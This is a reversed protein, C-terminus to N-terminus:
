IVTIETISASEYLTSVMPGSFVIMWGLRRYRAPFDSGVRDLILCGVTSVQGKETLIEGNGNVVDNGYTEVLLLCCTVQRAPEMITLDGSFDPYFIFPGEVGSGNMTVTLIDKGTQIKVPKFSILVSKGKLKVHADSIDVTSDSGPTFQVELVEFIYNHNQWFSKRVPGDISAWSWSPARYKSSSVPQPADVYWDMMEPLRSKWMGAIYLDKTYDQFLKAIGAFAFLKDSPRTFVCGSYEQVLNMWSDLLPLPISNKQKNGGAATLELLNHKGQAELPLYGILSHFESDMRTFCEWLVENLGFYLVRPALLIEQYVWGRKHLPGYQVRKNWHEIDYVHYNRPSKSDDSFVSASLYPPQLSKPDRARFLGGESDHSASAAVNCASNAYVYRMTPAEREWDRTSDQIICLADIWVYRISFRHAVIFFDRFTLPLNCISNGARFSDINSGLLLLTSNQGWRYSLTMYSANPDSIGDQSLVRLNWKAQAQMGIDILRSPYWGPKKFQSKNCRAHTTSTTCTTFWDFATDLASSTNMPVGPLSSIM